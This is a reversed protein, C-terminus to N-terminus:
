NRKRRTHPKVYTGDKRYYGRVHVTGGSYASYKQRKNKRKSIRFSGEYDYKKELKFLPKYAWGISDNYKVRRFNSKGKVIVYEGKPITIVKEGYLTKRYYTITEESTQCLYYNSSCSSLFFTCFLFIILKLKM